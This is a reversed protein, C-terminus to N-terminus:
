EAIADGVRCTPWLPASRPVLLGDGGDLDAEDCGSKAAAARRQVDSAAPWMQTVARAACGAAGCFVAASYPLEIVNSLDFKTDFSLGSL